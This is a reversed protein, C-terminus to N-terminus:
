MYGSGALAPGCIQRFRIVRHRWRGLIGQFSTARGCGRSLYGPGHGLGRFRFYVVGGVNWNVVTVTRLDAPRAWFGVRFWRFSWVHHHFSCPDLTRWQVPLLGWDWGSRDLWSSRNSWGHGGPAGGRGWLGSECGWGFGLGGHEAGFGRCLVGVRRILAHLRFLPLHRPLLIAPHSFNM